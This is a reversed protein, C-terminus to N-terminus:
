NHAQQEGVVNNEESAHDWAQVHPLLKPQWQVSRTKVGM